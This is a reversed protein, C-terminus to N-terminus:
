INNLYGRRTLRKEEKSRADYHEELTDVSVSMRESAIEKPVDGNLHATIAGRRIPHPSLSSPCRSYYGSETGECEEPSRNHPCKDAYYCPRTAMYVYRQISNASLRGQRSTLLPDRGHEDTVDHRNRRVHDDLAEALRDDAITVNREGDDGLKLPTDTEPRHRFSLYGESSHWDSLDLSYLAGRRCGTHWLLHFVIHPTSAWEYKCLYDIIEVATERDVFEERVKEGRSVRPILIKEAVGETVADVSECWRVFVRFTRLHQELTVPNVDCEAIRWNKFREAKRGTLGNMNDFAPEQQEAWKTFQKLRYRHNQITSKSADHTRSALYQEVADEPALPELTGTM